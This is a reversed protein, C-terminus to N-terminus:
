KDLSTGRRGGGQFRAFGFDGVVSMLALCMEDSTKEGWTVPKPPSNPNRPNKESNDYYAIVEVRTGKPLTIPEKFHYNDQWNFDWNKIWVLPIPDGNPPYATIKMEKGLLHMHPLIAVVRADRPAIWAAKVEHREAGPPLRFWTNLIWAISVMEPNPEKTFYLAVKSRDRETKGTRYYHIQLVIDAGKPLRYGTGKPLVTPTMGPAWAGLMSVPPFGPSGFSNYGPGPDRADLQRAVGTNDVFAIVHHVTKRNGPMIDIAQVYMDEDFNTPIVFHRYEDEGTPGIEYEESMEVVMDPKGLTWGDEFKRTPPLDNPDGLPADEDVWRAILSIQENTLRREKQFEGYHAEPKWPPMSRAATYKKIEKRWRYADEYSTLTFPAVQGPRHCTQCNDQIISAIDKAYTIRGENAETREPLRLTCGFAETNAVPVAKKNLLANLTDRLYPKKVRNEYRNDDLAGRYRLVGKSDIVFAQPTMTAGLMRALSGDEDKVVPMKYGMEKAHEAVEEKGEDYNSHVVFLSVGKASFTQYLENLRVTYRQAVPCATGSFVLAVPGRQALTEWNYTKGKIDTLTALRIRSGTKVPAKASSTETLVGHKSSIEVRASKQDPSQNMALSLGFLLTLLGTSVWIGKV